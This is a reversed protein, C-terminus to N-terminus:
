DREVFKVWVEDYNSIEVTKEYDANEYGDRIFDHLQREFKKAWKRYRIPAKKWLSSLQWEMGYYFVNDEEDWDLVQPLVKDLVKTAIKEDWVMNSYKWNNYTRHLAVFPLAPLLPIEYWYVSYNKTKFIPAISKKVKKANDFSKM